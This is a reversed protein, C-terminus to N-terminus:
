IPKGVRFFCYLIELESFVISKWFQNGLFISLLNELFQIRHQFFANDLIKFGLAFNNVSFDLLFGVCNGLDSKKASTGGFM